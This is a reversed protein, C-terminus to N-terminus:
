LRGKRRSRAHRPSQAAPLVRGVDLHAARQRRERPRRDGSLEAEGVRTEEPRFANFPLGVALPLDPSVTVEVASDPTEVPTGIVFQAM